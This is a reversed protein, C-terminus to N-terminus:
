QCGLVINALNFKYPQATTGSGGGTMVIDASAIGLLTLPTSIDSTFDPLQGEELVESFIGIWLELYFEFLATQLPAINRRVALLRGSRWVNVHFSGRLLCNRVQVKKLNSGAGQCPLSSHLQRGLATPKIVFSGGDPAPLRPSFNGFNDSIGVELDTSYTFPHRWNQGCNRIVKWACVLSGSAAVNKQFIVVRMNRGGQSSNIFRLKINM